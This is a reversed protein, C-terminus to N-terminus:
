SQHMIQSHASDHETAGREDDQRDHDQHPHPTAGIFRRTGGALLGVCHCRGRRNERPGRASVVDHRKHPDDTLSPESPTALAAAINDLLGVTPSVAV